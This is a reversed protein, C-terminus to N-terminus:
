AYCLDLKLSRLTFEAPTASQLTTKLESAKAIGGAFLGLCGIVPTQSIRKGMMGGASNFASCFGSYSSMLSPMALFQWPKMLMRSSLASSPRHIGHNWSGDNAFATQSSVFAITEFGDSGALTLSTAM